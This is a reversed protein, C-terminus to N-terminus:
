VGNDLNFAFGDLSVWKAYHSQCDGISTIAIFQDTGLSIWINKTPRYDIPLVMFSLSTKGTPNLRGQFELQGLSNKRYRFTEDQYTAWGNLLTPTIWAGQTKNAKEALQANTDEPINAVKAKEASTYDETSLGKGTVKDVKNSVSDDITDFNTALDAITTQIKDTLEPKILNLEGSTNTAM